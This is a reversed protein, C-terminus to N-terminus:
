KSGKKQKHYKSRINEDFFTTDIIDDEKSPWIKRELLRTFM